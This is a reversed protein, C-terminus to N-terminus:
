LIRTFGYFISVCPNLSAARTTQDFADHRRRTHWKGFNLLSPRKPSSLRNVNSKGIMDVVITLVCLLLNLYPPNAARRAVAAVVLALCVTIDWMYDCNVKNLLNM